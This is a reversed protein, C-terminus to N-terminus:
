VALNSVEPSSFSVDSFRPRRLLGGIPCKEEQSKQKEHLIDKLQTEHLFQFFCPCPIYHQMAGCHAIERESCAMFLPRLDGGSKCHKRLKSAFVSDGSNRTHTVERM